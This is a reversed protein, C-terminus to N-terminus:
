FEKLTKNIRRAERETCNVADRINKISPTLDGSQILDLVKSYYGEFLDVSELDAPLADDVVPSGLGNETKKIQSPSGYTRKILSQVEDNRKKAVLMQNRNSRDTDLVILGIIPAIDLIISFLLYYKSHDPIDEKSLSVASNKNEALSLREKRLDSLGKQAENLKILTDQSQTIYNLSRQSELTAYISDIYENQAKIDNDVLSIQDSASKYLESSSISVQKEQAAGQEFFQITSWMSLALLLCGVSLAALGSAFNKKLILFFGIPIFINKFIEAFIGGSFAFYEAYPISLFEPSLTMLIFATCGASLIMLGSSAVFIGIRYAGPLKFENM